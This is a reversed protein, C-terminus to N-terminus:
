IRSSLLVFPTDNGRLVMLEAKAPNILELRDDDSLTEESNLMRKRIARMQDSRSHTADSIREIESLDGSV